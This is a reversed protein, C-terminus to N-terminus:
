RNTHWKSRRNIHSEKLLFYNGEDVEFDCYGEDTLTYNGKFKHIKKKLESNATLIGNRLKERFSMEIM